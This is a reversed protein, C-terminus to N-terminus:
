TLLVGNLCGTENKLIAVCSLIIPQCERLSLLNSLVSQISSFLVLHSRRLRARVLAVGLIERGSLSGMAVEGTIQLGYTRCRDLGLLILKTGCQSKQKM